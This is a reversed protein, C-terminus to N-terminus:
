FGRENFQIIGQMFITIDTDPDTITIEYPYDFPTQATEEAKIQFFIVGTTRDPIYLGTTQDDGVEPLSIISAGGLNVKIDGALTYGTLDIAIGDSDTFTLIKSFDFGIDIQTCRNTIKFDFTSCPM